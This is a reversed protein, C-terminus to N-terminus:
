KLLEVAKAKAEDGHGPAWSWDETLNVVLVIEKSEYAWRALSRDQILHLLTRSAATNGIELPASGSPLIRDMQSVDCGIPCGPSGRHVCVTAHIPKDWKIIGDDGHGRGRSPNVIAHFNEHLNADLIAQNGAEDRDPGPGHGVDLRVIALGGAIWHAWVVMVGHADYADTREREWRRFVMDVFWRPYTNHQIALLTQYAKTVYAHNEALSAFNDFGAKFVDEHTSTM